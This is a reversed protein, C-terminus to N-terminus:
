AAKPLWSIYSGLEPGTTGYVVPALTRSLFALYSRAEPPLDKPSKAQKVAEGDWSPFEVAHAVLGDLHYQYPLYPVEKGTIRDTYHTVVRIPADVKSADLHTAVLYKYGAARQLYQGIPISVEYIDRLRGTSRGREDFKEQIWKKEDETRVEPLRRSGVSSLYTTKMAATRLAIKEPLIINYTSDNIYRTMPRSATVDPYVGHYPDLGAGQAGEITFPISPDNWAEQLLYYMDDTVYPKLKRRDERLRDIFETETGVLKKNRKGGVLANIEISSLEFKDGFGQTLIRYLEYHKRFTAEWTKDDMLDRVTVATREYFSAYGQAIGSGTSGDGGSHISKLASELARHTDLGLLTNSDILLNGLLEGGLERKLYGIEDVADSPHILMARGIMATAGEQAVAIPIQHTVIKKGNIVAEHGANAGGNFRYSVIRKAGEEKFQRNFKAVVSGKGSDGFFADEVSISNPRTNPTQTLPNLLLPATYIDINPNREVEQYIKLVEASNM